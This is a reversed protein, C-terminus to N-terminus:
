EHETTDLITCRDYDENFYNEAEQKNRAHYFTYWKTEEPDFSYIVKFTLEVDRRDRVPRKSKKM